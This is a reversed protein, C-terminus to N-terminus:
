NRNKVLIWGNYYIPLKTDPEIWSILYWYTGSSIPQGGLKGDWIYDKNTSQYVIAGQRDFIQIKVEEKIRLESYDLTDNYGDGNPTIANVLNIVLFDKTVPACGNAGKVYIKYTGRPLGMFVNSSQYNVGDISYEYPATGGSVNIIANAGNINISTIVPLEATTVNVYQRYVCGNFTLDVFYVGEGVSIAQTTEGTSWLYSTFGTGADLITKEDQCIIQDVLLSSSKGAKLNLILTGINPCSDPTTIRVYYTITGTINQISPIVNTNNQANALSTYYTATAGPTTTFQLLYDNLNVTESGNLDDDCVQTNVSNVLLNTKNGISFNLSGFASPCGNNSDVRIYVTTPTTYNWNNALTSNNGANADTQSLYYRVTFIGSNPVIQPTITSFNINIVGDFNDDCFVGNFNSTNILPLANLGLTIQAVQSCGFASTVNAYVIGAGSNYATPNTIPTTLGADSFYNITTGTQATVTASTLDFVGMNNADACVTLTSNSVQLVDITVNVRVYEFDLPNGNGEIYYIFTDSTSATLGPNPTYTIQGTTPNVLATGSTPNVVIQTSNPVINQTSSTFAPTIIYNNCSGISINTNAIPPCERYDYADTLRTECNNKSISCTYLGSGYLEPNIFYTTEGPLLNGNLYWQYQDYSDDVQLIIGNLCDGTKSIVPVSSFGAFYGGYGIAGSGGIIGATVSKTSNVTVNGTINPISYSVWNPNGQVPYPGYATNVNANNVTVTAGTQTLINLKTDYYSNGIKNIFGIEDVKNPLFCSLPPIYNFGGTAYTNGFNSGVGALLQYAYANKTTSVSMNYNDNGHNIYNTGPVVFYQGANLNIGTNNGNVIIGTNDETAVVLLAEMGSNTDGNGKVVVFDRGLRDVPVSQDMVIDNNSFNQNTYIANFNGNTVSIPKDSEIKAGLLGTLNYFSDTSIAELIYSQGKNLTFTKTPSSSGDAFVVNPNYGSVNVVTNDETATVGISSNVYFASASLPAMVAYFKRGLGALGKSTIIEGHNTITVRYNAFFKKPGKMNIGMSNTNMSSGYGSALLFQEPINVEAPNSKSIRVSRYLTNNNYIQVEFPTTENTSLYLFSQLGSTGAGAAMPAIWHETDLQAHIMCYLFTLFTLLIKKM